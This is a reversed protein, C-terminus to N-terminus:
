ARRRKRTANVIQMPIHSLPVVRSLIGLEACARPMGYVACTAQDQGLTFGGQHFIANIGEAGDSGMGTMIVGMTRKHFLEAVSKMM